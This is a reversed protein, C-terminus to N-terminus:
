SDSLRIEHGLDAGSVCGAVEGIEEVGDLVTPLVEGDDPSALDNSVELRDSQAPAGIHPGEEFSMPEIGSPGVVETGDSAIDLELV